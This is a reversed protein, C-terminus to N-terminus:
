MSAPFGLNRPACKSLGRGLPKGLYSIVDAEERDLM